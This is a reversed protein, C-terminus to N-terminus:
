DNAQIKYINTVIHKNDIFKKIEKPIYEAGFSHFYTANNGNVYAATQQTELSENKDLNIKYAGDKIEQIFVM